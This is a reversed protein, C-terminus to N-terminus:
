SWSWTGLGLGCIVILTFVLPHFLLDFLSFILAHLKVTMHMRILDTSNETQLSPFYTWSYAIKQRHLRFVVHM